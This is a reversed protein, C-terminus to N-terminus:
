GGHHANIDCRCRERHCLPTGQRSRSLRRPCAKETGGHPNLHLAFHHDTNQAALLVLNRRMPRDWEHILHPNAERWEMLALFAREKAIAEPTAEDAYIREIPGSHNNYWPAVITLLRAYKDDTKGRMYPDTNIPDPSCFREKVPDLYLGTAREVFMVAM